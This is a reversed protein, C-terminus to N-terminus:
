LRDRILSAPKRPADTIEFATELTKLAETAGSDNHHLVALPQGVAVPDGPRVALEIGTAPDVDDEKVKRGAGVELAARAVIKPNIRAVYGQEQAVVIERNRAAPLRDPDACVDPDGGQLDIVRSFLEIASGDRLVRDIAEKGADLDDVAAGLLLMEAGLERTLEVTDAPGGGNMVDIAERVELANGVTRGIPATMDTILAVVSKGSAEGIGILTKALTRAQELDRMFAGDGVKVDLVLADIGEALKKSMISSAILPISEVTGTVDRLAYLKRDAPALDETQGILFLGCEELMRCAKDTTLNVEFGPISELKDLTGGTHGLGRGSVMPVPVGLAAVAPALCLSIKDGVGGTSHKDVKVGPVGAHSMVRGSHLMADTWVSLEEEDLGKFLVAMLMAAMQYDPVKASTYAGILERIEESELRGGDRKRRIMSPLFIHM